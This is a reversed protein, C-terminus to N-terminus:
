GASSPEDAIAYISHIIAEAERMPEPTLYEDHPCPAPPPSFEEVTERILRLAAWLERLNGAVQDETPESFPQRLAAAPGGWSRM